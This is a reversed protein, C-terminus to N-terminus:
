RAAAINAEVKYYILSVTDVKRESVSKSWPSSRVLSLCIALLGGGAGDSDGRGRTDQIAFVYGHEAYFKALSVLGLGGAAKVYPTRVLIIPFRGPERPIWIDSSLNVGDRMPTRMGFQNRIGDEAQAHSAALILALVALPWSKNRHPRSDTSSHKSGEEESYACNGSHYQRSQKRKCVLGLIGMAVAALPWARDLKM